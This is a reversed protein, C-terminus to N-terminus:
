CSACSDFGRGLFHEHGCDLFPRGARAPARQRDLQVGQATAVRPLRDAPARARAKSDASERSGRARLLCRGVGLGRHHELRRAHRRRSGRGPDGAITSSEMLGNAKVLNEPSTLETLIGYKAPSYAAAGVGVLGYALFPNLGACLCLAGLLKLGNALLMVRGKPLADALPGRSHRSYSTLASSSNRCSRSRGSQTFNM